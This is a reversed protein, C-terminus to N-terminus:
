LMSTTIVMYVALGIVDNSMTIFPGSANAPDVNLRKLVMPTASGTFAAIVIVCILSISVAKAVEIDGKWLFIVVAFLGSIVIGNLLGVALERM